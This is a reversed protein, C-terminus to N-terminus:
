FPLDDAAEAPERDPNHQANTVAEKVQKAIPTNNEIRWGTISTFYKIDGKPSKWERGRLNIDISVQDGEKYDDLIYTKEKTFQIEHVQPYQDDTKVVIDRKKFSDSVEVTDFRKILTGTVKM